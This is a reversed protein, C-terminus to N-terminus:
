MQGATLLKVVVMTAVNMACLKMKGRARSALM